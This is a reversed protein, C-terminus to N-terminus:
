IAAAVTASGLSGPQPTSAADHNGADAAFRRAAIEYHVAAWVFLPPVTLLAARLSHVAYEQAWADSLVGVALPGLGVGVLNTCFVLLSAALARMDTRALTQLAAFSPGVYFAVLAGALMLAPLAVYRNESYIAIAWCPAAVLLAVVVCRLRWAPNRAGLRDALVGSLLTGGAGLVGIVFALLAGTSSLSLGHSRILLAPLWALVATVAVNALTGGIFLHRLSKSHWLVGIANAIGVRQAIPANNSTRAPEKVWAAAALAMLLGAVGAILFASRWGFRQGLFGGVLFGFLIGLHIGAAYIAMAIGRRELPYLDAIMSQSPPNTGAEGIGVGIRALLLQWYSTTWAFAATLTSFLLLSGVIIRSRNSRDAHRAIPIGLLSFFVVFAFGYLLGAAADSMGFERKIPEILIAVLQRDMYSVAYIMLLVALTRHAELKNRLDFM